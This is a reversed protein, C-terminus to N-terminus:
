KNEKLFDLVEEQAQKYNKWTNHLERLAQVSKNVCYIMGAVLFCLVAIALYLEKM